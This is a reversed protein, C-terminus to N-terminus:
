LLKLTILHTKVCTQSKFFHKREYDYMVKLYDSEPPVNPLEFAYKRSVKKSAYKTIRNKSFLESVEEYVDTLEVENDTAKGNDIDM